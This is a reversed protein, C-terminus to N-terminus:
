RGGSVSGIVSVVDEEQLVYSKKVKEANVLVDASFSRGMGELYEELTTGKEVTSFSIPKTLEAIGVRVKKKAAM